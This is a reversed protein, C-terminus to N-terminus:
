SHASTSSYVSNAHLASEIWQWCSPQADFFVVNAGYALSLIGYFGANAGVDLVLPPSATSRKLVHTFCAQM